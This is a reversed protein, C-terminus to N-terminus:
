WGRHHAVHELYYLLDNPHEPSELNLLRFCELLGGLLLDVLICLVFLVLIILIVLVILIILLGLLIVLVVLGDTVVRHIILRSTMM